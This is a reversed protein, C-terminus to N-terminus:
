DEFEKLVAELVRIAWHPFAEHLKLYRLRPDAEESSIQQWRAHIADREEPRPMRPRGRWPTGTAKRLRELAPRDLKFLRHMLAPTAGHRAFYEKLADDAHQREIRNLGQELSEGDISVAIRLDTRAAVRAADELPARRLRELTEPKVGAQTLEERRQSHSANILEELILL